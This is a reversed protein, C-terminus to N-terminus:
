RTLEAGVDLRALKHPNRMAFIQTIQGDEVVVSVITTGGVEDDIRVSHGLARLNSVIREIPPNSIGDAAAGSACQLASVGLAPADM